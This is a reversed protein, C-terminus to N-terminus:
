KEPFAERFVACYRKFFDRFKPSKKNSLDHFAPRSWGLWHVIYTLALAGLLVAIPVLPNRYVATLGLGVILVVNLGGLISMSLISGGVLWGGIFNTVPNLLVALLLFPVAVLPIWQQYYATVVAAYGTLQLLAYTVLSGVLIWYGRHDKYIQQVMEKAGEVKYPGSQRFKFAANPFFYHIMVDRLSRCDSLRTDIKLLQAIDDTYFGYHVLHDAPTREESQYYHKNYKEIRKELTGHIGDNFRPDTIMKHTLLCQMEIINNLGGTTPRMFGIFYVNRLGKPIVGMFNNRCDYEYKRKLSGEGLVIEPLNPVEYDGDVIQDYRIVKDKWRITRQERDIVTERKPWLEVLGHELFFAIDNLLYGDRISQKLADNDFVQQYSDIPWFKIAIIGNPIPSYPAVYRISLKRNLNFRRALPHKVYFHNLPLFKLWRHCFLVYDNSPMLTKRYPLYALHRINHYELQDLTFPAGAYFQLKDLILFGNTILVIRNNYPILKAVMLNVSDGMATFAITKNTADAYDFQNLLENMRRRLATAIVLHKTEFVRGSRTHIVSKSSYNEVSVVYDNIVKSSYQTLYKRIFASFEKATPYRDKADLKVLEFSYMSSHVSSVLDFDLREHRELRDWISGDGGSVVVYNVNDRELERILPIASLGFGIILVDTSIIREDPSEFHGSVTGELM